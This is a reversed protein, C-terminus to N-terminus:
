REICYGSICVIVSPKAFDNVVSRDDRYNPYLLPCGQVGTCAHFDSFGALFGIGIVPVYVRRGQLGLVREAADLRQGFFTSDTHLGGKAVSFTKAFDNLQFFTEL